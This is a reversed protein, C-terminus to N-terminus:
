LDVESQNIEWSLKMEDYITSKSVKTVFLLFFM